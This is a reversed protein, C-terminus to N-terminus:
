KEKWRRKEKKWKRRMKKMEVVLEDFREKQKGNLKEKILTNRKEFIAKIKPRHKKKLHFILYRLNMHFVTDKSLYFLRQSRNEIM